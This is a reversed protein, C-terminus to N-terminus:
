SPPLRVTIKGCRDPSFHERAIAAVEDPTVTEFVDLNQRANWSDQIWHNSLISNALGASSRRIQEFRELEQLRSAVIVTEWAQDPYKGEGLWYLWRRMAEEVEPLFRPQTLACLSLTQLHRESGEPGAQYIMQREHRLEHFLPGVRVDTLLSLALMAVTRERKTPACPVYLEVMSPRRADEYSETAIAPRFKPREDRIPEAPPFALREALRVVEEHRIGGTVILAMRSPVYQESHFARLEPMGISGVGDITGGLPVQLRPVDGHLTAMRWSEFANNAERDRIEQRVVERESDISAADFEPRFVIEMLEPIAETVDTALASVSYETRSFTTGANGQMGRRGFRRLRPHMGDRAPGEYMAHELFHAIGPFEGDQLGGSPVVVRAMAFATDLTATLVTLGSDLVTRTVPIGLSDIQETIM